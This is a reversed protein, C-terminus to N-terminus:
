PALPSREGPRVRVVADVAVVGTRQVILPNIEAEVIEQGARSLAVIAAALADIDGKPRGRYGTLAALSRVELIMEHAEATTVPALRMARDQLLEALVGGAALLVIPGAEPDRRFGLLVEGLGTVMAQVLLRPALPAIRAAADGFDVDDKVDLVVGGLETKHM